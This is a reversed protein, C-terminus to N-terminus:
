RPGTLEPRVKGVFTETASTLTQSDPSIKPYPTVATRRRQVQAQNRGATANLVDAFKRAMREHTYQEVAEKDPNYSVSGTKKFERYAKLLFQRLEEASQVQVGTKTEELTPGLVGRVGGVALIPREAGFYEFLKGTHQGTERPDSWGLLLLVQSEAQRALAEARPVKGQIEVVEELGYSKVRPPMWPQPQGYFRIRLDDKSILGGAILDRVAAFLPAPDRKGEYLYGTHTISFFSTLKRPVGEFDGPDFGNTIAYVPKNPYRAQLRSAWPASVTILADANVLTKRELRAQLFNIVHGSAGLNGAWLDRFDAIWPRNFRRKAAAAILNSCPPPSTSLIVDPYQNAPLEALAKEAFRVWGKYEDPFAIISYACDIIKNHLRRANPDPLALHMQQYLGHDPRLGFRSKWQWIVNQYETEIIRGPPRPGGPLAATFVTVDWGLAPLYKALAAPRMSGASYRPPYHYAILLVRPM